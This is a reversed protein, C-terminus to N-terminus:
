FDDDFYPSPTIRGRLAPAAKPTANYIAPYRIRHIESHFPILAKGMLMRTIPPIDWMDCVVYAVDIKREHERWGEKDDMIHLESKNGFKIREGGCWRSWLTTSPIRKDIDDFLHAGAMWKTVIAIKIGTNAVCSMVARDIMRDVKTKYNPIKM